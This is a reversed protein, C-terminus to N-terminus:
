LVIATISCLIIVVCHASLASCAKTAPLIVKAIPIRSAETVMVVTQFVSSDSKSELCPVSIKRKEM